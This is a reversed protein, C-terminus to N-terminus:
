LYRNVYDYLCCAYCYLVFMNVNEGARGRREKEEGREEKKTRREERNERKEVV